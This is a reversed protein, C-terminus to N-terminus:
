LSWWLAAYAAPRTGGQCSIAGNRRKPMALKKAWGVRRCVQSFACEGQSSPMVWRLSSETSEFRYQEVPAWEAHCLLIPLNQVATAPKRRAPLPRIVIPMRICTELLYRAQALQEGFPSVSSTLGQAYITLASM